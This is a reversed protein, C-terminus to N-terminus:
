HLSKYGASGNHCHVAATYLGSSHRAFCRGNLRRIKRIAARPVTRPIYVPRVGVINRPDVAPLFFKMTKAAPHDHARVPKSEGPRWLSFVRFGECKFQALRTETPNPM